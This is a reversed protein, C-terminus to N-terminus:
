NTGPSFFSFSDQPQSLPIGGDIHCSPIIRIAASGTQFLVMTWRHGPILKDEM